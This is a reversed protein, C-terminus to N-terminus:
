APGPRRRHRLPAVATAPAASEPLAPWDWDLGMASLQRRISRLDWDYAARSEDSPLYLHSGDPSFIAGGFWCQNPDELNAVVRGTEAEILAVIGTGRDVVLLRGDPSFGLGTGRTLPGERWDGVTRLRCSNSRRQNVMLWRGDPSFLAQAAGGPSALEDM